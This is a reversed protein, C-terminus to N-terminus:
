KSRRSLDEGGNTVQLPEIETGIIDGLATLVYTRDLRAKAPVCFSLVGAGVYSGKVPLSLEYSIHPQNVKFFCFREWAHRARRFNGSIVMNDDAIADDFRIECALETEQFEQFETGEPLDAQSPVFLDHAAVHLYRNTAPVFVTYVSDEPGCGDRSHEQPGRLITCHYGLTAGSAEPFPFVIARRGPSYPENPHSMQCINEM